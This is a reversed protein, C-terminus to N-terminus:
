FLNRKHRFNYLEDLKPSKLMYRRGVKVKLGVMRKIEDNDCTCYKSLNHLMDYTTKCGNRYFESAMVNFDFLVNHAIITTINNDRIVKEVESALQQITIGSEDSLENTIGHFDSNQISFNIRKIIHSGTQIVNCDNGLVAYSMSVLRSSDYHPLDTPPYYDNWGRRDPLGTTEIDFVLGAMYAYIM